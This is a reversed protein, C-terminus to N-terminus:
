PLGLGLWGGQWGTYPTTYGANGGRNTMPTLERLNLPSPIGPPLRDVPLGTPEGKNENPDETPFQTPFTPWASLKPAAMRRRKQVMRYAVAALACVVIVATIVCWAEM